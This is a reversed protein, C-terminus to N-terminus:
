ATMKFFTGDLLIYHSSQYLFLSFFLLPITFARSLFVSFYLLYIDNTEANECRHTHLHSDAPNCRRTSQYSNVSMESTQVAEMMLAILRVHIVCLFLRLFYEQFSCLTFLTLVLPSFPATIFATLPISPLAV